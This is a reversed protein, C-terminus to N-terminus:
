GVNFNAGVGLYDTHACSEFVRRDRSMSGISQHFACCAVNNIMGWQQIVVPPLDSTTYLMYGPQDFLLIYRFLLQFVRAFEHWGIDTVPIIIPSIAMFVSRTRDIVEEGGTFAANHMMYLDAWIKMHDKDKQTMTSSPTMIHSWTMLGIKLGARANAWFGRYLDGLVMTLMHLSVISRIVIRDMYWPTIQRFWAWYLCINIILVFDIIQIPTVPVFLM